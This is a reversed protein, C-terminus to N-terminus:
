HNGTTHELGIIFDGLKRSADPKGVEQLLEPLCRSRAQNHMLEYIAEDIPFTKSVALALGNNLLFESNRDEQGPIPDILILPLGKALAESVTLGGPKSVLYDSADMMVDVNDVFGYNYVTKRTQLADIQRKLHKNNGCVCLIQFDAQLTDMQKLYKLMDGYGMSGTMMFVTPKDAIGLRARADQKTMKKSFKEEIPIGFPLIRDTPIGRKNLQNNLLASPTVYYDITATEWFPHVCFDTIIGITTTNRILGREKFVSVLHAAFIHTAVIVDPNQRAIYKAFQRAVIKSGLDVMTVRDESHDRKEELRYINGYMTPIYKTSILYGKEVLKSLARNFYQYTDIINADVGRNKLSDYVARATKNHGQGATITLILVKM